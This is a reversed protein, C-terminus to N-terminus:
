AVHTDGRLPVISDAVDVTTDGLVRGGAMAVIRSAITMSAEVEHSATLVTAGNAIAELVIRDLEERAAADLSAHPEDLLWVSPRRAVLVALAVLKRQGASLRGVQTGPLRGVLNLRELAAGVLKADGGAARVAFRVNEAVSLDDYLAAAHGLLAVDRRVAVCDEVLDHGLVSAEGSTVRLLGACVRLLSTKGAGNPGTLVVSEGEDVRLDVGALAPFRGTMAVAANLLVVPAM